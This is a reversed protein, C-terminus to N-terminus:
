ALPPQTIHYWRWIESFFCFVRPNAARCLAVWLLHGLQDATFNCCPRQEQGLRIGPGPALGVPAQKWGWM